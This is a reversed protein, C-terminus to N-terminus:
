AHLPSAEFAEFLEKVSAYVWAAGADALAEQSFGGSRLAITRINSRLAGEVDYPTDGIAITESAALPFVKAM